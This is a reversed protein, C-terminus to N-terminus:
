LPLNHTNFQSVLVDHHAKLARLISRQAEPSYDEIEQFFLLTDSSLSNLNLILSNTARAIRNRKHQETLDVQDNLMLEDIRMELAEVELRHAERLDDLDNM